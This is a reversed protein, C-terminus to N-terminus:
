PFIGCITLEILSELSHGQELARSAGKETENNVSETKKRHGM